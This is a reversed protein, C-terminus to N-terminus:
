DFHVIVSQSDVTVRFNQLPKTAPGKIVAGTTTFQSGHCPCALKDPDARLTCGKHTCLMQLAVYSGDAQKGIFIPKDFKKTQIVVFNQDGFSKVEFSATNDTETAAITKTAACSNLMSMAGMTCVCASFTGAQKLFDRRTTTNM